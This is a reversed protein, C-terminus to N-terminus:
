PNERLSDLRFEDLERCYTAALFIQLTNEQARLLIMLIALLRDEEEILDVAPVLSLLICKQREDFRAFQSQDARRRFIGTKLDVGREKRAGPHENQFFM